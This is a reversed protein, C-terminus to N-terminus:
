TSRPAIQAQLLLESWNEFADLRAAIEDVTEFRADILFGREGIEFAESALHVDYVVGLHQRSVERADDYILGRYVIQPPPEKPLKIEEGLERIILM